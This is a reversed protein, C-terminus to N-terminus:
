KNNSKSFEENRNFHLNHIWNSENLYSSLFHKLYFSSPFFLSFWKFRIWINWHLKWKFERYLLIIISKHIAASPLAFRFFISLHFGFFLWSFGRLEFWRFFFDLSFFKRRLINPPIGFHLLVVPKRQPTHPQPFDAKFLM